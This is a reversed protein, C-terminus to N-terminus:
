SGRRHDARNVMVLVDDCAIECRKLEKPPVSVFHAIDNRVPFIAKLMRGFERKDGFLEKFIGWAQNSEMLAGLQGLYMCDMLMRQHSPSLPYASQAQNRVKEITQWDKGLVKKMMKFERGPWKESYKRYVLTRLAIETKRIVDWTRGEDDTEFSQEWGVFEDYYRWFLANCKTLMRNDDLRCVGVYQLEYWVGEAGFRDRGDDELFQAVERREFSVEQTALRNLAVRADESFHAM